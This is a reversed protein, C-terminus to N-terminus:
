SGTVGRNIIKRFTGERLEERRAVFQEPGLEKLFHNMTEFYELAKDKSLKKIEAKTLPGKDFLLRAAAQPSLPESV